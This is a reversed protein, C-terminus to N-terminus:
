ENTHLVTPTSSRHLFFTHDEDAVVITASGCDGERTSYNQPGGSYLRADRFRYQSM